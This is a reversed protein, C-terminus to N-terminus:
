PGYHQDAPRWDIGIGHPNRLLRYDDVRPNVFAPRHLVRDIRGRRFTWPAQGFINFSEALAFYKADGCCGNSFSGFV